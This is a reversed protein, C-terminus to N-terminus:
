RASWLRNWRDGAGAAARRETLAEDLLGAQRAAAAASALCAPRAPPGAALDRWAHSAGAVEGARFLDVARREGPTLSSEPPLTACSAAMLLGAAALPRIGRQSMATM